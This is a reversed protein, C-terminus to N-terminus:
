ANFADLASSRQMSKQYFLNVGLLYVGDLLAHPSLEFTVSIPHPCKEYVVKRAPSSILAELEILSGMIGVPLNHIVINRGSNKNLTTKNSVAALNRSIASLMRNIQQHHAISTDLNRQKGLSTVGLTNMAVDRAM